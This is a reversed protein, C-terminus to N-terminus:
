ADISGICLLAIPEIDARVNVAAKVREDDFGAALVFGMGLATASLHVNEALAGAELYVYREGRRGAPPQSHFHERMAKFDGAVVIVVAANRVWPQEGLAAEYLSERADLSSIPELAHGNSEYRYLGVPLDVVRGVAVYLALPYQAGASPATRLGAGGTAGQAAWLLRDLDDMHIPQRDFERCTRRAGITEDLPLSLRVDCEKPFTITM